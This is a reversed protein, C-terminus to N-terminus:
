LSIKAELAFSTPQVGFYQMYPYRILTSINTTPNFQNGVYSTGGYAPLGYGCTKGTSGTTWPESTGGSCQNVLNLASGVLTMRASAEYTVQLHVLTQNPARFAGPTDFAHTFPNPIDLGTGCTQADFAGGGPAGYPYRPDGSGVPGLIGSCSAPDIGPSQLPAGYYAGAHWQVAPTFSWKDHKFNLIFTAVEPVEYSAVSANLNNPIIDFPIYQGNVDLINQVPANWYPNAVDGAIACTPDWATTSPSWCQAAVGGQLTTGTGCLGGTKGACGKTYANYQQIALNIQSFVTGGNSLQGLTTYSHTYTFSFQGSLGNQSFDGKALEFEVGDSVQNGVPIGSVFNTAQNLYFQQYQDHTKRYYPTLKFSVDSGRFHHEWSFDTNYSVEPGLAHGPTNFGYAYFNLSSGLLQPLNQQLSNYQQFAANPAQSFKGYSFRLVDDGTLSYTAGFRPQTVTYTNVPSSANIFTAVHSGAPCAVTNNDFPVSGPANNVCMTSNWANFWFNRSGGTTNSGDFEFRDVRVQLNVDLKDTPKIDDSISATTFKPQVTNYTAWPGNEVVMYECPGANAGSGCTLGTVDAESGAQATQYTVWTPHSGSECSVSVTPNAVNYCLGSQPNASSVLVAMRDRAGGLIGFMQTNNDRVTSATVYSLQLGLLNHPDIQDQFEASGGRTHTELEYDAPCCAVFGMNNSNDGHLFWWSYYTYGYLRLYANSGINKQYQLKGIGQGNESSDRADAPIAGFAPAGNSSPAAYTIVGPLVGNVFTHLLPGNYQFGGLYVFPGGNFAKVAAPGGFDLQSSYYPNRLLSTSYLFQIDDKGSDNHHPIAFHFNAVTERDAVEFTNFMNWPATTLQDFGPGGAVPIGYTADLSAGNSNDYYRPRLNYGGFGLYYSFNRNPTAGGVEFNLKNYLNPGGVAVDLLGFGPYTGTRIVQNIFGALGQSEANAPAAGTYVQLQQQGLSSATTTPYNDFSRNVPVGDYEYGVQDYDGGRIYVNQYWGTQNPPVYLGPLSALASYANDAGGGGGLTVMKAAARSNVNYVDATTGPKVLEAAARVPITGLVKASKETTITTSSSNDAIVTLGAQSVTDFGDKSVTLSYTDPILSVFGFHGTADTTTSISESPSTATVNAGALPTGDNLVVQGTLSGSTGALAWTGQFLVVLLALLAIRLFGLKPM